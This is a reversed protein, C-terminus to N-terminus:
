QYDAFKKTHQRREAHGGKPCVKASHTRRFTGVSMPDCFLEVYQSPEVGEFTGNRSDRRHEGAPAKPGVDAQGDGIRTHM